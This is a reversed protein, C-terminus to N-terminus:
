VMGRKRIIKQISVRQKGFTMDLKEGSETLSKSVSSIQASAVLGLDEDVISVYDGNFFDKGYVYSSAGDIITGDMSSFSAHDEMYSYGRNTLVEIYEEETMSNEGDIESQLDKADVYLEIRGMGSAELDGVEVTTRATGEGEGAVIATSCYETDDEIYTSSSLNNMSVSFVIPNNGETNDITRDAPKHVRFALSSINVMQGASESYKAIIPALSYGYGFPSLVSELAYRITKGTAQMSTSEGDPIYEEDASLEIFSINRRQDENNIFFFDVMNRSIDTISGSFSKTVLFSRWELIKNLLYGKIEVTSSSDTTKKRYRIIGMIDDDFLIFHKKDLYRLSDESIPVKLSFTGVGCFEATYQAFKCTKIMGVRERTEISFIELIM